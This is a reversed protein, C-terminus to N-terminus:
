ANIVQADCEMDKVEVFVNNPTGNKYENCGDIHAPMVASGTLSCKWGVCGDDKGHFLYHTRELHECTFCNELWYGDPCSQKKKRAM